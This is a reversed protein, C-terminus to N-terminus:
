RGPKTSVAKATVILRTARENFRAGAFSGLKSQVVFGCTEILELLAASGCYRQRVVQSRTAGRGNPVYRYTVDLRGSGRGRRCSEFASWTRGGHEFQALTEDEALPALDNGALRDANWVDFAFSGGPELAAHVARFCARVDRASLLCFLANYPLLVREFRRPLTFARMDGAVLTVRRRDHAPLGAVTERGLRLLGRDLELGWVDREWHSLASLIRGYGSGLELVSTAGHCLRLYHEVDGPNGRHTLAYLNADLYNLGAPNGRVGVARCPYNARRGESAPALRYHASTCQSASERRRKNAPSSTPSIAAALLDARRDLPEARLQEPAMYAM